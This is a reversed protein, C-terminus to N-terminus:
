YYQYRKQSSTADMTVLVTHDWILIQKITSTALSCPALLLALSPHHTNSSLFIVYLSSRTTLTAATLSPSRSLSHFTILREREEVREEMKQAKRRLTRREKKERERRKGRRSEGFHVKVREVVVRRVLPGLTVKVSLRAGGDLAPGYSVGKGDGLRKEKM